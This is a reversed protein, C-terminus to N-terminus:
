EVEKEGHLPAVHVAPDIVIPPDEIIRMPLRWDKFREYASTIAKRMIFLCLLIVGGLGIGILLLVQDPVDITLLKNGGSSYGVLDFTYINAEFTM